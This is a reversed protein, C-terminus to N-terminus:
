EHKLAGGRTATDTNGTASAEIAAVASRYRAAMESYRSLGLLQLVEVDHKARLRAFERASRGHRLAESENNVRERMIRVAFTDRLIEPTLKKLRVIEARRGVTEIVFNVGRVSFSFVPGGPLPARLLRALAFHARATLPVSRRRVRKAQASHRITVRSDSPERALYLDEAQLALAEDRKLGADVFLLVLAHWAPDVSGAAVVAEVEHSDLVIVPARKLQPYVLGEAPSEAIWGATVAYRLFTKLTAIKRRLSSSSNGRESRLWRVHEALQAPALDLLSEDGIHELLGQLDLRTSRVTHMARGAAVLYTCYAEVAESLRRAPTPEVTTSAPLLVESPVFLPLQRGAPLGLPNM